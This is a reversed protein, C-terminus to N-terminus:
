RRTRIDESTYEKGPLGACVMADRWADRCSAATKHKGYRDVFVQMEDSSPGKADVKMPKGERTRENTYVALAQQIPM